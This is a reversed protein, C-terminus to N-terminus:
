RKARFSVCAGMCVNSGLIGHMCCISTFAFKDARATCDTHSEFTCVKSIAVISRFLRRGSNGPADLWCVNPLCSHNARCGLEYLGLGVM